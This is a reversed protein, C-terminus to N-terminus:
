PLCYQADTVPACFSGAPLAECNFGEPCDDDTGCTTLCRQMTCLLEESSCMLAPPDSGAPSGVSGNPCPSCAYFAVLNNVTGSPCGNANSSCNDAQTVCIENLCQQRFQCVQKIQCHQNGMSDTNQCANNACISTLPCDSNVSCGTQCGQRGTNMDTLCEQGLPCQSDMTCSLECDGLSGAPSAPSIACFQNLPCEADTACQSAPRCVNNLCVFTPDMFRTQCEQDGEMAGGDGEGCPEACELTRPDCVSDQACGSSMAVCRGLTSDCVQSPDDCAGSAGCAALSDPTCMPRAGCVTGMPVCQQVGASTNACVQGGPCSGEVGCASACFAPTGPYDPHVICYNGAGCEEDNSCQTCFGLIAECTRVGEDCYQGAPCSGATCAGSPLSAECRGTFVNCFPSASPCQSDATCVCKLLSLDCELGLSACEANSTCAVLPRPGADTSTPKTSCAVLATLLFAFSTRFLRIM